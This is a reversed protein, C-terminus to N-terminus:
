FPSSFEVADFPVVELVRHEGAASRHVLVWWWVPPAVDDDVIEARTRFLYILETEGPQGGDRDYRFDFCPEAWGGGGSNCDLFESAEISFYDLIAPEPSPFEIVSAPVTDTSLPQTPNATTSRATSATSPAITTAIPDPATTPSSVDQTTSVASEILDASDDGMILLVAGVVFVLLAGVAALALAAPPRVPRMGSAGETGPVVLPETPEQSLVHGVSDPSEGSPVAAVEGDDLPTLRRADVWLERGDPVRVRSWSGLREAEIVETGAAVRESPPISGDPRDRAPIDAEPVLCRRM